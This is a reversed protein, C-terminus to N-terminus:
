VDTRLEIIDTTGILFHNGNINLAYVSGDSIYFGFVPIETSDKLLFLKTINNSPKNNKYVNILESPTKNIITTMNPAVAPHDM